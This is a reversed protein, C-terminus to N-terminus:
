TTTPEQPAPEQSQGRRQLWWRVSLTLTALGLLVGVAVPVAAPGWIAAGIATNGITAPLGGFFCGLTYPAFRTGTTGFLYSVVGYPAAPVLRVLGVGVVGHKGLWADAKSLTSAIWSRIPGPSRHSLVQNVWERGFVRGLAFGAMAALMTGVLIYIMAPVWGFLAGAVWALPTRATLALLLVAVGGIALVPGWAGADDVIDVIENRPPLIRSVIVAAIAVVAILSLIRLVSRVTVVSTAPEDEPLPPDQPASSSM